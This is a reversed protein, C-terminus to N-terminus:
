IEIREQNEEVIRFFRIEMKKSKAEQRERFHDM